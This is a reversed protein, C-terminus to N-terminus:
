ESEFDRIGNMLLTSWLAKRSALGLTLWQRLDAVDQIPTQYVHDQEQMMGWIHYNSPNHDLSNLMQIDPNIFKM